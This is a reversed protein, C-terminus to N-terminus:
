RFARRVGLTLVDTTPFSRGWGDRQVAHALAVRATWDSDTSSWTVTVAAATKALGTTPDAVGDRTGEAEHLWSLAAATTLAHGGTGLFARWGLSLSATARDGLRKRVPPVWGGNVRNVWREFAVGYGIAVSASFARWAKDVLLAGDLRYFGRGTVDLGDRVHDYPSVGTPLTLTAGLTVDPLLDAASALRWASRQDLAEWWIGLAADGLGQSRSAIGGFRNDNLVLPLSASAQWAGALRLAGAATLRYQAMSSGAPDPRHRGDADWYGDYREAELSLDAVARDGRAALAGAGGGGGGCCSAARAWAPALAALAAALGPGM